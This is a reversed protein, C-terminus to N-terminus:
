ALIDCNLLPKIGALEKLKSYCYIAQKGYIENGTEKYFRYATIYYKRYDIIEKADSIDLKPLDRNCILKDTNIYNHVKDMADKLFQDMKESDSLTSYIQGFSKEKKRRNKRPAPGYNIEFKPKVLELHQGQIWMSKYTNKGDYIQEETIPHKFDSSNFNYYMRLLAPNEFLQVFYDKKSTAIEVYKSALFKKRSEMDSPVIKIDAQPIAEIREEWFDLNKYYADYLIKEDPSFNIKSQRKVYYEKAAKIIFNPIYRNDREIL